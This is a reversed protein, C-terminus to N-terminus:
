QLEINLRKLLAGLETLERTVLQALREPPGGQPNLGLQLLRNRVHPQKLAADVAANLTQIIPKPTGAPLMFGQLGSRDFGRLGLEHLTPWDPNVATRELSNAGILKVQGSDVYPRASILFYIQVQGSILDNIVQAEGKYPVHVLDIQAMSRLMECSLHSTSGIGISACNLKGPNAKAWDILEQLSSPAFTKSAVLAGATTNLLIVPDFAKLTEYPPNKALAALVQSSTTALLMTYGDAPARAVLLSGIRGGAGPRNDVLIPQKLITRMEEAVTRTVVDTVGGAAWPVVITIPATPYDQATATRMGASLLFGAAWALAAATMAGVIRAPRHM